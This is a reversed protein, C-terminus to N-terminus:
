GEGGNVPVALTWPFVSALGGNRWGRRSSTRASSFRWRAGPMSRHPHDFLVGLLVTLAPTFLISAIHIGLAALYGSLPLWQGNILGTIFYAILGQALVMTVAIGMSNAILKAVIFAMRSSPKSQM